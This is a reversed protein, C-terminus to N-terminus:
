LHMLSLQIGNPVSKNKIWKVPFSVGRGTGASAHASRESQTPLSRRLRLEARDVEAQFRAFEAQMQALDAARSAELRALRERLDAVHGELRELRTSITTRLERLDDTLTDLRQVVTAIKQLTQLINEGPM